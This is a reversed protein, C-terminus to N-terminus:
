QSEFKLSGGIGQSGADDQDTESSGRFASISQTVGESNFERVEVEAPSRYIMLGILFAGFLAFATGPALNSVRIMNGKVEGEIKMASSALGLSFLKYGFFISFGGVAVISLRWSILYILYFSADSLM